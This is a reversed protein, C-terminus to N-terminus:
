VIFRYYNSVKDVYISTDIKVVVGSLSCTGFM